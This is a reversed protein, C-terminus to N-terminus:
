IEEAPVGLKRLAWDAAKRVREYNDNLLQKIEPIAEKADLHKLSQVALGRVSPTNDKLLKTIDPIATKAHLTGLTDVASVRVNPNDDQLLNIIIPITEKADLNGLTYIADCRISPNKSHLQRLATNIPSNHWFMIGAASILACSIGIAILITRNMYNLQTLPNLPYHQNFLNKQEIRRM